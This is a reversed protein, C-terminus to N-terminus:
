CWSMDSVLVDKTSCLVQFLKLFFFLNEVGCRQVHVFTCVSEKIAKMVMPDEERNLSEECHKITQSDPFQIIAQNSQQCWLSQNSGKQTTSHNVAINMLAGCGREQVGANTKHNNTATLIM